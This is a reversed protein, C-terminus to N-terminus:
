RNFLSKKKDYIESKVQFWDLVTHFVYHQDITEQPKKVALTSDNHWLLFPIEYQERPAIKMPVGHMFLGDEGLSEGHDSAYIMAAKWGDLTRLTDIVSRLIYDTYVITNDYANNLKKLDKRADEVNTAIPKFREFQAPYHNQYEPGHSTSTHLVILVNNKASHEIRDKLGQVLLMDYDPNDWHYTLALEDKNVYESIHVPPEGWNSTRWVVDAGARYLYNPLIEYLDPTDKYELISKVGATTYTACSNANFVHLDPLESLLPNTPRNYGYLQFNAARASEGIILVMVSKDAGTFQADPLIIEERQQQFRANLMRIMNVTYSWPMALGGLETEYKGIWLVQNFNVLVLLISIALSGGAWKGFKRWSGWDVKQKLIFVAPLVGLVLTFLVMQWTFFGSAESYRTNLVNNMMAGDMFNHYTIVFYTCLGNLLAFLALLVKGVVRFLFLFLYFAFFNLTVLLVGMSAVLLWHSANSFDAHDVVFLLFPINFLLMNAVSCGAVFKHLSLRKHLFDFLRMVMSLHVGFCINRRLLCFFKCLNLFFFRFLRSKVVM